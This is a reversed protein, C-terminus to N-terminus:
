QQHSGCSSVCCPYRRSLALAGTRFIGALALLLGAAGGVEGFIDLWSGPRSVHAVNAFQALRIRILADRNSNKGDYFLDSVFPERQVIKTPQDIGLMVEIVETIWNSQAKHRISQGIYITKRQGAEIDLSLYLDSDDASLTLSLTSSSGYKSTSDFPVLLEFGDDYKSSFCIVQSFSSTAYRSSITTQSPTACDTGTLDGTVIAAASYNSSVRIFDRSAASGNFCAWMHSCETALNLTVPKQDSMLELGFVAVKERQVYSQVSFLTFLLLAVSYCLTFTMDIRENENHIVVDREYQDARFPNSHFFRERARDKLSTLPKIERTTSAANNSPTSVESRPASEDEKRLIWVGKLETSSSSPPAEADSAEDQKERPVFVKLVM